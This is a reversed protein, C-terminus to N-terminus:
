RRRAALTRSLTDCMDRESFLDWVQLLRPENHGARLAEEVNGRDGPARDDSQDGM